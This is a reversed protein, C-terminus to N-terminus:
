RRPRRGSGQDARLAARRGRSRARRRRGGLAQLGAADIHTMGEADLVLATTATPAGRLAEQIRGKVYSATAFFPRDDLRYAMASPIALAAVTVGALVDRRATPARYRPLEKAVPMARQWLPDPEAPRFPTAGTYGDPAGEGDHPASV